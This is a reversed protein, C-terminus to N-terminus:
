FTFQVFILLNNLHCILWPVRVDSKDYHRADHPCEQIEPVERERIQSPTQVLSSCGDTLEGCLVPCRTCHSWFSSNYKGCM